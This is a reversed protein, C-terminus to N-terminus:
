VGAAPVSDAVGALPSVGDGDTEGETLWRRLELFSATPVVASVGDVLGAGPSVGAADGAASFCRLRLFATESVVGTGDAGVTDAVGLGDISPEKKLLFGAGAAVVGAGAFAGAVVLVVVAGFAGFDSTLVAGAGPPPFPSTQTLVLVWM